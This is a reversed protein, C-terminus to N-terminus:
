GFSRPGAIDLHAADLVLLDLGGEGTADALAASLTGASSLDTTPPTLLDADPM